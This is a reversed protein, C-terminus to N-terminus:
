PQGAFGLNEQNRILTVQCYAREIEDDSGDTSGNDVVILEIAPHTQNLVHDICARVYEGGNWNLIVISVLNPAVSM